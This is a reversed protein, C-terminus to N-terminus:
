IEAEKYWSKSPTYVEPLKHTEEEESSGTDVTAPPPSMYADVEANDPQDLQISPHPEPVYSRFPVTEFGAEHDDAIFTQM